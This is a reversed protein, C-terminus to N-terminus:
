STSSRSAASSSTRALRTADLRSKDLFDAVGLAMAQLDLEPTAARALMVIPARCGRRQAARVLELGDGDPLAPDVLCVEFMGARLCALATELDRARELTFELHSAASLLARLIRADDDDAEVLLIRIPARAFPPPAVGPPAGAAATATVSLADSM